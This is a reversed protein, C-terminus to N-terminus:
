FEICWIKIQNVAVFTRM